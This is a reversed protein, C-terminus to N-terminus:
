ATRTEHNWRANARNWPRARVGPVDRGPTGQGFQPPPVHRGLWKVHSPRRMHAGPVSGSGPKEDGYPRSPIAEALSGVKRFPKPSEGSVPTRLGQPDSGAIQNARTLTSRRPPRRLVPP